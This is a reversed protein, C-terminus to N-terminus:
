ELVVEKQRRKFYPAECCTYEGQNYRSPLVTHVAIWDDFAPDDTQATIAYKKEGKQTTGADVPESLKLGRSEAATKWTKLKHWGGVKSDSFYKEHYLVKLKNLVETNDPTALSPGALSGPKGLMASVDDTSITQMALTQM